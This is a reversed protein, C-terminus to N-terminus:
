QALKWSDMRLIPTDGDLELEGRVELVRAALQIDLELRGGDPATLMLALDDGNQNRVLLGPPVGGSLCRVACGRHVKGVAPRMVGLYCKTDVLEGTFRGKGLSVFKPRPSSHADLVTFSSPDNMEIMAVGNREILSGKFRVRQGDHGSIISPPGFKGAGCLLYNKNPGGTAELLPLPSEYLTGEFTKVIGFEFRGADVPNQFLAAIALVSFTLVLVALFVVLTFRRLGAPAKSQWGIYFEGAPTSSAAAVPVGESKTRSPLPNPHVLVDDGIVRVTFTPAIETFPPPSCGDEVRYQYGHWPCTLCGSVIRGEGLPGGQHRCVNSIAYVRGDKLFLAIRQAGCMVVRGIGETLESVQAVKLFGDARTAARKRDLRWEKAFALLHLTVVILFGAGLLIALAPARESQLAGLCVHSVILAYAVYVLMHMTKWFSAGLNRLWFDHSTAAM